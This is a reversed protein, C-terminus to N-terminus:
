CHAVVRYICHYQKQCYQEDKKKEQLLRISHSYYLGHAIKQLM